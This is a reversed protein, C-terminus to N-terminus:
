IVGTGSLISLDGKELGLLGCYVEENHQGLRPAPCRLSWPTEQMQFPAGPLTV